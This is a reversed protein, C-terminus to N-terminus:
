VLHAKQSTLSVPHVHQVKRASAVMASAVLAFVVFAFIRRGFYGIWSTSSAMMRRVEVPEYLLEEEESWASATAYEAGTVRQSDNVNDANNDIYQKMQDFDWASGSTKTMMWESASLQRIDSNAAHPYPCERPFLLHLWQAFLRGHLPVRGGHRSAVQGLRKVLVDPIMGASVTATHIKSVVDVVRDLTAEPSSIAHEIRALVVECEDSCCISYFGTHALCNAPSAMYNAVIVRAEGPKSEDLAGQKRLHEATERFHAGYKVGMTYFDSLKVRGTNGEEMELLQSKLQGCEFNQFPGFGESIRETLYEVQKYDFRREDVFPNTQDRMAFQATRVTDELWMKTDHWGPYRQKLNQLGRHMTPSDSLTRRGLLLSMLFGDAALFLDSGGISQERSKGFVNYLDSLRDTAEDHIIHEITAAFIAIEHLLLGTSGFTEEFLKMIFAPVKEQLIGTIAAEGDFSPKGSDAIGDIHWGHRQVFYRHLAYRVQANGLRGLENKPLALWMPKLALTISAINLDGHGSGLYGRIEGLLTEEIVTENLYSM